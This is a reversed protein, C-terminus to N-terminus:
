LGTWEFAKEVEFTMGEETKDSSGGVRVTYIGKNARWKNIADDWYSVAYKDLTLKVDETKGPAIDKVKKFARLQQLPHTLHGKPLSVYVQAVESGTVSGTNTVSLSIEVSFDSAKGTPKSASVKGYKFSTYSLGYGFPFLPTIKRHQYNKYGVYLDESYRVKGNESRFHGFAAIDGLRKPFTMSMKASPNVKGFLVDAIANGNENGGYWSQILGAVDDVWPMTVASGSQCVVVTKKNVNAVAAVLEDTRGPLALTDRDFGESEWDGSTGVIVIAVDADKALQAAEIISEEEKLVEAGGLTLGGGLGILSEHDDNISPGRMNEYVVHIQHSVGAKLLFETTKETTGSGFFSTGAEQFTWNDVVEKGDVYLKARGQVTLGFKFLTDKERPKLKGKLELSWRESIGDPIGDVLVFHTEKIDVVEIPEKDHEPNTLSDHSYFSGTWGPKGAETLIEANLLPLTCYGVTGEHYTVEVGKPLADVIGTHPTVVYACNMSASGGGSAVLAKANPGIIAIKKITDPKIPLIDGDNKLLVISNAAVKRMLASDSAKEEWTEKGNGDIVAANTKCVKKVMELVNRAREKVTRTTTKHAVIQRNVKSQTRWKDLGPMELDLGANISETLSYTGWWDSMVMADSKWEERLIGTLLEKRESCHTGNYKNYSSMYCIPNSNKQALMFPMLYIERLARDSLISDAGMREHEQDNAVFHKICAAVGGSQLGNIYASAMMGSLHPDEAFSEFSRGGLPNRQINCTPALLVSSTRLKTEPALLDAAVERILEPDWTAGLATACPICNAPTSRFFSQGRVGNPGDSVKISPIGLRPVAATWWFKVGAILSIAEDITLKEVIDDLDADAFSSLKVNSM